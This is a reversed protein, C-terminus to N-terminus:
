LLSFPPTSRLKSAGRTTFRVDRANRAKLYLIIAVFNCYLPAYHQRRRRTKTTAGDRQVLNRGGEKGAALAALPEELPGHALVQRVGAALLLGADDVFPLPIAALVAPVLLAQGHPHLPLRHLLLTLAGLLPILALHLARAARVRVHRDLTDELRLLPDLALHLVLAVVLYIHARGSPSNNPTHPRIETDIYARAHSFSSSLPSVPFSASGVRDPGPRRTCRPRESNYRSPSRIRATERRYFFFSFLRFCFYARSISIRNVRLEIAIERIASSFKSEDDGRLVFCFIFIALNETKFARRSEKSACNSEKEFYARVRREVFSLVNRRISRYAM